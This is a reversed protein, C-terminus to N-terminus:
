IPLADVKTWSKNNVAVVLSKVGVPTAKEDKLYLEIDAETRRTSLFAHAKVAQDYWSASRAVVKQWNSDFIHRGRLEAPATDPMVKYTNKLYRPVTHEKKPRDSTARRDLLAPRLSSLFTILYQDMQSNRDSTARRDLLAPRLSSLFTILYQDMQSNRDSTARRDLLAPRLSSLFTILYQDMQSNRDQTEQSIKSSVDPKVDEPEPKVDVEKDLSFPKIENVCAEGTMSLLEVIGPVTRDDDQPHKFVVMIRLASESGMVPIHKHEWRSSDLKSTGKMTTAVLLQALSGRIALSAGTYILRDRLFSGM